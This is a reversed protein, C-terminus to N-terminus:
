FPCAKPLEKVMVKSGLSSRGQTGLAVAGPGRFFFPLVFRLGRASCLREQRPQCPCSSGSFLIPLVGDLTLWGSRLRSCESLGSPFTEMWATGAQPSAAVRPGRDVWSFLYDVITESSLSGTPFSSALQAHCLVPAGVSLLVPTLVSLFDEVPGQLFIVTTSARSLAKLRSRQTAQTLVTLEACLALLHLESVKEISTRRGSTSMTKTPM